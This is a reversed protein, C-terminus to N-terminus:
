RTRGTYETKPECSHCAWIQSWVAGGRGLEKTDELLPVEGLTLSPDSLLPRIQM